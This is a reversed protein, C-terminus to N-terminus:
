RGPAGDGATRARRDVARALSAAIERAAVSVNPARLIERHAGPLPIVELGNRLYGAWRLSPDGGAQAVNEYGTFLAVPEDYRQADYSLYGRWVSKKLAGLGRADALTAGKSAPFLGIRRLPRLAQHRARLLTRRGGGLVMRRLHARRREPTPADVLERVHYRLYPRLGQPNLIPRITDVLGLWAVDTGEEQLARAVELAIVGGFSFGALQLPATVPLLALRERHFRVWGALDRPLPGDIPPHDIGYLPQDPGMAAGLAALQDREREWTFLFVLPPREGDENVVVYPSAHDKPDSVSPEGDKTNKGARETVTM